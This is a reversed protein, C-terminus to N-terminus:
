FPLVGKSNFSEYKHVGFDHICSLLQKMSKSALYKMVLSLSGNAEVAFDEMTQNQINEPVNALNIMMDNREWNAKITAIDTKKYIAADEIIEDKTMKLWEDVKKTMISEQKKNKIFVDGASLFNPVSDSRDGRIIHEVLLAKADNTNFWKKQVPAWQKVNPLT